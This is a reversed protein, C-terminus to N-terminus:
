SKSEDIKKEANWPLNKKKRVNLKSNAEFRKLVQLYPNQLSFLLMVFIEFITKRVKIASIRCVIPKYIVGRQSTEGAWMGHCRSPNKGNLGRERGCKAGDSDVVIINDPYVDADSPRFPNGM